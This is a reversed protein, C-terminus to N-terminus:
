GMVEALALAAQANLGQARIVYGVPEVPTPAAHCNLCAVVRLRIRDHPKGEKERNQSRCSFPAVGFDPELLSFL